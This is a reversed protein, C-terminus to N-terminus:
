TLRRCTWNGGKKVYFRIRKNHHRKGSSSLETSLEVQITSSTSHSPPSVAGNVLANELLALLPIDDRVPMSAVNPPTWNPRLGDSV